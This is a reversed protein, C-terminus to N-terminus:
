AVNDSLLGKPDAQLIKKTLKKGLEVGPQDFANVRYYEGLFAISCEFFMFLEGLTRASLSPIRITATPRGYETLAQETGKKESNMLEHFSRGGLYALKERTSKPILPSKEKEVELFLILKDNPGETWLQLQSHQDTVGVGRLPTIGKGEKGISEALLQGYWDAFSALRSSYPFLVTIGVGQKWELLYQVTALQFPLNLDWETEGFQTAMKEAGALLEEIDIGLLAAPFLGVPSLVSFRGGVEAPITLMPIGYEKGIARLEGEKPDTIFVFREKSVKERFYFFQAMTEPTTGSKSIVIFLTKDLDLMNELEGVTDLNDLVFLRPKGDLNWLPGKLADRLSTIGLASGGIGLIVIDKFRGKLKEALEKVALVPGKVKPLLPFNQGKAKFSKLFGSIKAEEAHLAETSLGKEGLGVINHILLEVHRSLRMWWLM